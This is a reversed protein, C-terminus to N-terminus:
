RYGLGRRIDEIRPEWKEMSLTGIMKKELAAGAPAPAAREKPTQKPAGINSPVEFTTSSKPM